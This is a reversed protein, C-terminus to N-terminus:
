EASADGGWRAIRSLPACLRCAISMKGELDVQTDKDLQFHAGVRSAAVAAKVRSSSSTSSALTTTVTMTAHCRLVKAFGMVYVRFTQLCAIALARTSPDQIAARARVVINIYCQLPLNRIRNRFCKLAIEVSRTEPGPCPTAARAAAPLSSCLCAPEPFGRCGM